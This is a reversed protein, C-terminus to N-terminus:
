QVQITSTSTQATVTSTAVLEEGKPVLAAKDYVSAANWLMWSTLGVDYTAQIQARVMAPTYTAGLDFAQLWPRLKMPSSTALVAKEIASTMSYQIVEYPKEAPKVIGRYGSGFHSPYVMPAVYDFNHLADELVQGIGLDDNSSTVLGFLDASTVASSSAFKENVYEFFEKMTEQRSRGEGWSYAIDQMNGDSPFRIYDFNLEDFGQAYSEHGIAIVYDWVPKAGADLWKVGKRDKWIAGAKTKVAWEPHITV